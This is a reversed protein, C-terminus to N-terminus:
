KLNDMQMYVFLNDRFNLMKRGAKLLRDYVYMIDKERM